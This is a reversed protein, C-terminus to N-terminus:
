DFLCIKLDKSKVPDKVISVGRKLCGSLISTLLDVPFLISLEEKAIACGRIDM